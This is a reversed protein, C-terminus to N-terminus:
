PGCVALAFHERPVGTGPSPKCVLERAVHPSCFERLSVRAGMKAHASGPSHKPSRWKGGGRRSRQKDSLLLLAFAPLHFGVSVGFQKTRGLMEMGAGCLHRSRIAFPSTAGRAARHGDLAAHPPQPGEGRWAPHGGGVVRVPHQAGGAGGSPSPVGTHLCFPASCGWGWLAAGCWARGAPGTPPAREM